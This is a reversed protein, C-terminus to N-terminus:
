KEIMICIIDGDQLVHDLGVKQGQYKVSKGWVQAYKFKRIFDKHLAKCVDMIRSGDRLIMPKSFDPEGKPPKTFIRILRLNSYISEKLNEMGYRHKASVSVFGWGQGEIEKKVNEVFNEDVTDIKNMVVLGPIYVRNGMFADILQEATLNDRIIIDANVFYESAIGKIERESLEMDLPKFIRLGGEGRKIVKVFPERQNLRFGATKLEHSLISLQRIPDDTDLLLILLDMSRLASLIERGRGKGESAQEVIGPFDLIQIKAGKYDMMGPIVDITTFDYDGIKSEKNVLANFLTSKGVSPLGVIGVSADGEKKISFGKGERGKSKAERLEERLRALKAKLKGLHHETAKNKQTRLIEEEIEEIKKRIEEIDM